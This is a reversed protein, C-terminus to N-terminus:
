NASVNRRSVFIMLGNMPVQIWKWSKRIQMSLPLRHKSKTVPMRLLVNKNKMTKPFLNSSISSLLIMLGLVMMLGLGSVGCSILLVNRFSNLSRSCDLFIIRTHSDSDTETRLYRYASFFGTRKGSQLIEKAYEGAESSNVAAIKGTDTSLVTGNEDLLVSFFRSEYPLEPSQLRPNNNGKPPEAQTVGSANEISDSESGPGNPSFVPATAEPSQKTIDTQTNQQPFRGNNDQLITLIGDADQVIGHYNLINVIGIIITIVIFLSIMAASILKFRLKRIM